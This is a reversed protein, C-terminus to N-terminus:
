DITYKNGKKDVLILENSQGAFYSLICVKINEINNENKLTVNSINIKKNNFLAYECDNPVILGVYNENTESNMGIVFFDMNDYSLKTYDNNYERFLLIYKDYYKILANNESIIEETIKNDNYLKISIQAELGGFTESQWEDVVYTETESIDDTSTNKSFITSIDFVGVFKLVAAITVFICIIGIFVKIKKM